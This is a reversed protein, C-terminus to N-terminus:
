NWIATEGTALEGLRSAWKEVFCSTYPIKNQKRLRIFYPHEHWTVSVIGVILMLPGLIASQISHGYEHVRLKELDGTDGEPTFIFLGLSMGTDPKDWRTDIVGHYMKHPCKFYIMFAILGILTAGIGWTCHLLIFLAKLIISKM